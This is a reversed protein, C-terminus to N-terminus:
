QGYAHLRPVALRRGLVRVLSGLRLGLEIGPVLLLLLLLLGVLSISFTRGKIM